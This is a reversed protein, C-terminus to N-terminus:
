AKMNIATQTVSDQAKIGQANAQYAVQAEILGVLEKATEVNSSELYGSLIEGRLETNARNIKTEGSDASETWLNSGSQDLGQENRVRALMIAGLADTQGNSYNAVIVGDKNIEIGKFVGAEYGDQSFDKLEFNQAYQTASFNVNVEMNDASLKFDDIKNLNDETIPSNENSRRYVGKLQGDKGFLAILYDSDESKLQVRQNTDPDELYSYIKWSSEGTPKDLSSSTVIPNKVFYNVLSYKKGESGYIVNSIEGQFTNKDDPNFVIGDPRYIEEDTGSTRALQGLENVYIVEQNLSKGRNGKITKTNPDYDVEVFDGKIEGNNRALIEYYRDGDRGPVKLLNKEDESGDVKARIVVTGKPSVLSEEPSRARADLKLDLKVSSTVRAPIGNSKVQLKLTADEAKPKYGDESKEVEIGMLNRGNNNVLFGSKDIQFAGNRTLYRQNSDSVIFFGPGNIALDLPRGTNDLDGAFFNQASRIVQTGDGPALATNLNLQFIDGFESRSKKFGVTRGNAINNSTTDLAHQAGNLGSLSTYVGM